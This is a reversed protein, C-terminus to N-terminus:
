HVTGSVPNSSGSCCQYIRHRPSDAVAEAAALIIANAVLDVPIVDIVGTRKGPFLTVKERAYALIIADAM